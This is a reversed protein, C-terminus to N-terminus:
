MFFKIHYLVVILCVTQAVYWSHTLSGFMLLYFIKLFVEQKVDGIVSMVFNLELFFHDKDVVTERKNIKLM